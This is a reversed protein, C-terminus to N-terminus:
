KWGSTVNEAKCTDKGEQLGTEEVAGVPNPDAKAVTDHMTDASAREADPHPGNLLRSQHCIFFVQSVVLGVRGWGYLHLYPYVM